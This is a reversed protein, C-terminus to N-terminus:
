TLTLNSYCAGSPMMKVFDSQCSIITKHRIVQITTQFEDFAEKLAEPADFTPLELGSALGPPWEKIRIPNRLLLEVTDQRELLWNILLIEFYKEM